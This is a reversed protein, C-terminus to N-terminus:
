SGLAILSREVLSVIPMPLVGILLTLVAAFTINTRLGGNLAPEIERQPERLFMRMVVRLYFYIAFASTLLGIFALWGLGGEYAATFVYFKAIFGATPPVGALSFMFIAMALALWPQRQFLGSFDDLSWVSEGRQELAVVVAFAGLNTLAYALMYFLFAEAGRETAVIVSLLVYGAHGVSSYALMRKVNTQTLAGLNGVLMTVAALVSLVPLWFAYALPLATTLIRLLAALAAAKTGVSMFAAVPTPSGEYVDPVWMHFPVLAVKFGFTILLLAAGAMLLVHENLVFPKAALQAGITALNTTGTAGYVLAIGYVFFGAAFAGMVLYKMAAEESTVRPYAFGTLVYLTLSLLEIALFMVVLDTAQVLLIMAAVAFMILPYFEGQEIEHRPLYDLAMVMTLAGILLFLWTLTLSYRDLVVMDSFTSGSVNWLPLAVVASVALGALALYGTLKKREDPIVFADVLLLVLAWATVTLLPAVLALDVPPIQIPDM